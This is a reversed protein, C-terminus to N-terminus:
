GAQPNKREGLTEKLVGGTIPPKFTARAIPRWNQKEHQLHEVGSQVLAHHGGHATFLAQTLSV